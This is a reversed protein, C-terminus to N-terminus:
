GRAFVTTEFDRSPALKLFYVHLDHAVDVVVLLNCKDFELLWWQEKGIHQGDM